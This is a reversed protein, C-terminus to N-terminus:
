PAEEGVGLLLERGQALFARCACLPDGVGRRLHCRSWGRPRTGDQYMHRAAHASRDGPLITPSM